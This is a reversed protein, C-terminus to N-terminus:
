KQSGQPKTVLEVDAFEPACSVFRAGENRKIEMLFSAKRVADPGELLQAGRLTVDNGVMAWYVMLRM